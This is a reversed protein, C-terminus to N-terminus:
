AFRHITIYTLDIGPTIDANSGKSHWAKVEIYENIALYFDKSIIPTYAASRADVRNYSLMTGNKWFAITAVTTPDQPSMYYTADFHYYGAVAATFRGKNTVIDFESDTDYVETDYLIITWTGTTITQANALYTSAKSTFAGGPAAHSHLATEGGNVLALLNENSILSDKGIINKAAETTM